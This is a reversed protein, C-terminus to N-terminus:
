GGDTEIVNSSALVFLGDDDTIAEVTVHIKQM